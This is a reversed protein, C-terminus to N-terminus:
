RLLVVGVSLAMLSGYVGAFVQFLKNNRETVNIAIAFAVSFTALAAILSAAIVAILAFEFDGSFAVEFTALAITFAAVFVVFLKKM